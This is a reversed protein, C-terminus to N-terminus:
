GDDELIWRRSGRKAQQRTRAERRRALQARSPRTPRREPPIELADALREGLRELALQRNQWQSRQTSSVARVRRGLRTTIRERQGEDLAQSAAVDFVVEARTNSTNAHQGGPGGSASYRWILEDSPIRPGGPIQLDSNRM